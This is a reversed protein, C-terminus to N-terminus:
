SRFWVWLSFKIRIINILICPNV